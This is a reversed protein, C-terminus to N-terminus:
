KNLCCQIHATKAEWILLIGSIAFVALNVWTAGVLGFPHLQLAEPHSHYFPSSTLLALIKRSFLYWALYLSAVGILATMSIWLGITKRVGLCVASVLLCLELSLLIRPLAPSVLTEFRATKFVEIVLAYTNLLLALVAVGVAIHFDRPRQYSLHGIARKNCEPEFM